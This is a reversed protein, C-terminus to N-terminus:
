KEIGMLERLDQIAKKRRKTVAQHSIGLGAAYNRRTEGEFDLSLILQLQDSELEELAAYLERYLITDAVMEELNDVSAIGLKAETKGAEDPRDWDNDLRLVRKTNQRNCVACDQDCNKTGKWTCAETDSKYREEGKLWAQNFRHIEDVFLITKKGFMGLSDKAIKVIEEMDKKGAVTANIQKFDASTTNAIVRALTTKGTGPPGYFIVSGLKDAKIARYLLKDKGIIHQQGVVEELTVPRLRSALPSEKEMTNERMYDFLDM